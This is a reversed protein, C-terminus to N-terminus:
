FIVNFLSWCFYSVLRSSVSDFKMKKAKAIENGTIGTINAASRERKGSNGVSSSHCCHQESADHASSSASTSAVLQNKKNKKRVHQNQSPTEIDNLARQNCAHTIKAGNGTTSVALATRAPLRGQSTSQRPKPPTSQATAPESFTAKANIFPVGNNKDPVALTSLSNPSRSSADRGSSFASASLASASPVSNAGHKSKSKIKEATNDSKGGNNSSNNKESHKNHKKHHSKSKNSKSKKGINEDPSSCNRPLNPKLDFNHNRTSDTDLANIFPGAASSSSSTAASTSNSATNSQTHSKNSKVSKKSKTKGIKGSQGSGATQSFTLKSSINPSLTKNLNSEISDSHKNGCLSRGVSNNNNNNRAPSKREAKGDQFGYYPKIEKNSKDADEDTDIILNGLGDEEGSSSNRSMKGSINGKKMDSVADGGAVVTASAIPSPCDLNSVQSVATRIDSAM